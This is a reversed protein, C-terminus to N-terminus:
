QSDQLVKSVLFEVVASERLKTVFHATELIQALLGRTGSADLGLLILSQKGDLPQGNRTVGGNADKGFPKLDLVVAGHFEDITKFYVAKQFSHATAFISTLNQQPEGAASVFNKALDSKRM